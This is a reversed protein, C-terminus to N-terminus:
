QSRGSVSKHVSLFKLLCRLAIFYVLDMANYTLKEGNAISRIRVLSVWNPWVDAPNRARRSWGASWKAFISSITKECDASCLSSSELFVANVEELLKVKYDSKISSFRFVLVGCITRTILGIEVALESIVPDTLFFFSILIKLYGWFLNLNEFESVNPCVPGARIRKM